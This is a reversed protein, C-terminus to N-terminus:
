KLLFATKGIKKFKNEFHCYTSPDNNINSSSSSLRHNICSLYLYLIILSVDSVYKLCHILICIYYLLRLLIHVCLRLYFHSKSSIILM